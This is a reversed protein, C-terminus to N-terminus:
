KVRELICSDGGNKKPGKRREYPLNQKGGGWVARKLLGALMGRKGKGRRLLAREGVGEV